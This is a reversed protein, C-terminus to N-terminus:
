GTVLAFRRNPSITRNLPTMPAGPRTRALELGVETARRLDGAARRPDPALARTIGDLM